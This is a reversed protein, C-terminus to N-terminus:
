QQPFFSHLITLGDPLVAIFASIYIIPQNKSFIFILLIAACFDLTVRGIDPLMKSWQKKKINEIPYDIHPFLDLLYHGLFALAIALFPNLIKEGILAGFLLHAILIM